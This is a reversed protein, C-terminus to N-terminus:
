GELARQGSEVRDTRAATGRLHVGEAAAAGASRGARASAGYTRRDARAQDAQTWTRPKLWNHARCYGSAAAKCKPCNANPAVYPEAVETSPRMNPFLEYFAEDIRDARGAFEMVGGASDAADRAARMRRTWTTVFQDGYSERFSNSDFGLGSAAAGEGRTAAEKLYVRQVRSRSAAKDGDWGARDAIVRRKIGASRMRYVNEADSLTGDWSPDVKTSFMLHSGTWLLEFYRLDGEYGVVTMSWPGYHNRKVYIRVGVHQAIRSAIMPYFHAMTYDRPEFSITLHTPVISAPDVALAEEEAIAYDRMIRFAMDRYSQRAEDSLTEDDANALLARVKGAYDFAM